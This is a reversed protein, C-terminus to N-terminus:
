DIKQLTGVLPLVGSLPSSTNLAVVSLGLTKNSRAKSSLDGTLTLTITGGAPVALNQPTLVAQHKSDLTNTSAILTSGQLLEITRVSSDSATGAREVTITYITAASASNNTLTITTFPIDTASRSIETAVPQVGAGFWLTGATPAANGMLTARVRAVTASDADFATLLDLISNIQSANLAAQASAPFAACLFFAFFISGLFKKM